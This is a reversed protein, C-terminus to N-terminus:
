RVFPIQAKEDVAAAASATADRTSNIGFWVRLSELDSVVVVVVVVVVRTPSSNRAPLLM